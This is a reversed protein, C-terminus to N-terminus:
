MPRIIRPGQVSEIEQLENLKSMIMGVIKGMGARAQEETPESALVMPYSCGPSYAVIDHCERHVRAIVEFATVKMLDVYVNGDQSKMWMVINM